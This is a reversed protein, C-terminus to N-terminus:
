GIDMDTSVSRVLFAVAPFMRLTEKIFRDLYNLNAVDAQTIDIGDEFHITKVEEYVREQLDPHM